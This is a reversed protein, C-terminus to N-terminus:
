PLVTVGKIEAGRIPAKDLTVLLLVERHALELYAADYLTLGCQDAIELTAAWAKAEAHQDVLIMLTALDAVIASWQLVWVRKSRVAGTVANAVEFHWLRPVMAGADAIRDFLAEIEGTREDGYAWALTVSSDLM